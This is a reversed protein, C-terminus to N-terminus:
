DKAEAEGIRIRSGLASSLCSAGRLVGIRLKIGRRVIHGSNEWYGTLPADRYIRPETGLAGRSEDSTRIQGLRLSKQPRGGPFWKGDKLYRGLRGRYGGVQTVDDEGRTRRPWGSLRRSKDREDGREWGGRDKM